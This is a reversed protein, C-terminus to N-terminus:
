RMQWAEVRALAVRAFGVARRDAAGLIFMASLGILRRTRVPRSIEDMVPM